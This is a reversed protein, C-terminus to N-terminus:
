YAIYPAKGRPQARAASQTKGEVRLGTTGKLGMKGITKAQLAPPEECGARIIATVWTCFQHDNMVM